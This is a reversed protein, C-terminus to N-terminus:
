TFVIISLDFLPSNRMSYFKGNWDIGVKHTIKNELKEHKFIFNKMNNSLTYEYGEPIVYQSFKSAWHYGDGKWTRYACYMSNPNQLYEIPFTDIYEKIAKENGLLCKPIFFSLGGLLSIKLFDRRNM